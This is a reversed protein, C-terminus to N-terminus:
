HGLRNYLDGLAQQAWTTDLDARAPQLGRLAQDTLERAGENAEDIKALALNLVGILRYCRDILQRVAAPVNRARAAAAVLRSVEMQLLVKQAQLLDVQGTIGALVPAAPDFAQHLLDLNTEGQANGGVTM